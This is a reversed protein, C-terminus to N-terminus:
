GANEMIGACCIVSCSIFLLVSFLFPKLYGTSRKRLVNHHNEEVNLWYILSVQGDFRSIKTKALNGHILFTANEQKRFDDVKATRVCQLQSKVKAPVMFTYHVLTYWEKSTKTM